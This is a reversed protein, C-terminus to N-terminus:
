AHRGGKGGRIIYIVAAWVVVLGVYGAVEM